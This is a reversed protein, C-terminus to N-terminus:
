GAPESEEAPDRSAETILRTKRWLEYERADCWDDYQSSHRVLTASATLVALASSLALALGGYVVHEYEDRPFGIENIARWMAVTLAGVGLISLFGFVVGFEWV